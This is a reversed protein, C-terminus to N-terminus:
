ARPIIQIAVSRGAEDVKARVVAAAPATFPRAGAARPRPPRLLDAVAVTVAPPTPMRRYADAAAPPPAKKKTSFFVATSVLAREMQEDSLTEIRRHYHPFLEHPTARVARERAADARRVAMPNSSPAAVRVLPKSRFGVDAADMTGHYGRKQLQQPTFGAAALTQVTIFRMRPPRQGCMQPTTLTHTHRKAGCASLPRARHQGRPASAAPRASGPRQVRRAEFLLGLQSREWTDAMHIREYARSGPRHHRGPSVCAAGRVSLQETQM